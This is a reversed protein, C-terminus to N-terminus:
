GGDGVVARFGMRVEKHAPIAQFYFEIYNVNRTEDRSLNEGGDSSYFITCGSDCTASGKLYKVGKPIPNKIVINERDVDARNTVSNLYIVSSGSEIFKVSISKGGKEKLTFVKLKLSSLIERKDPKPPKPTARIIEEEEVSSEETSLTEDVRDFQEDYNINDSGMGFLLHTSIILLAVRRM